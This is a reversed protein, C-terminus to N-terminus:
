WLLLSALASIFASSRLFLTHALKSNYVYTYRREIVSQNRLIALCNLDLPAGRYLEALVDCLHKVLSHLAIESALNISCIFLRSIHNYVGIRSPNVNKGRTVNDLTEIVVGYSVGTRGDGELVHNHKMLTAHHGGAYDYLCQQGEADTIIDGRLYTLLGQPLTSGTYQTYMDKKIEDPTRAVSWIRVEDYTAHQAGNPAIGDGAAFVLNGFGGLGSYKSSECSGLRLGDVYITMKNKAVVIAIHSWKGVQLPANYTSAYDDYDYNNWGASYQGHGTAYFFFTTLGAGGSQNWYDLSSPKIWFEITANEHRTAM